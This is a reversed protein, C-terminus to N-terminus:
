AILDKYKIRKGVMGKIVSAMQDITDLEQLNHKGAFLGNSYSNQTIYM